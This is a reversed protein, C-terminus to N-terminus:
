GYQIMYHESLLRVKLPEGPLEAGYTVTKTGLNIALPLQVVYPIAQPVPAQAYGTPYTGLEHWQLSKNHPM